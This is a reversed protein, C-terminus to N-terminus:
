IFSVKLTNGREILSTYIPYREADMCHDNFKVPEELVNSDRDEKYKYSQKEKIYNTSSRHIHQKRSKVKNIGDIVSRPGKIAPRIDFGARRIDEIRAPEAADAYITGGQIPILQKLRGILDDNTLKTAYLLERGWPEDDRWNIEILASPNNYGFDLGYITDDFADPWTAPIDWNSYILNKLVGWEGLAYIKYYNEDEDKLGELVRTYEQDIFRNDRYTTKLITCNEKKSEFFEKYAWNLVSIPNFSLVMQKILDTKGRLRLDLQRFDDLTLETAEEVWIDTVGEISKLKEPDDLGACIFDNGNPMTITMETRNVHAEDIDWEIRYKNLLAFVSRRCSPATKRICLVRLRYGQSVGWLMKVWKKQAAYYSKGSGASGYLVLYRDQNEFLSYYADNVIEPLRTFDFSAEM